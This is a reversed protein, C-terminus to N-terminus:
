SPSSGDTLADQGVHTWLTESVMQVSTEEMKM